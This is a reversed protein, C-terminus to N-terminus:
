FSLFSQLLAAPVTDTSQPSIFSEAGPYGRSKKKKQMERGTKTM